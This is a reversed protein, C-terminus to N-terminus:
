DPKGFVQKLKAEVSGSQPDPALTSYDSALRMQQIAPANMPQSMMPRATATGDLAAYLMRRLEESVRRAAKYPELHEILRADASVNLYLDYRVINTKNHVKAM